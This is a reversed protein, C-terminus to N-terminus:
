TQEPARGSTGTRRLVLATLMLCTFVLYIALASVPIEAHFWLANQLWFTWATYLTLLPSLVAALYFTWYIFAEVQVFKALAPGAGDGSLRRLAFFWPVTAQQQDATLMFRLNLSLWTLIGISVIVIALYAKSVSTDVQVVPIHVRANDYQEKAQLYIERYSFGEESMVEALNQAGGGLTVAIARLRSSLRERGMGGAPEGPGISATLSGAYCHVEGDYDPPSWTMNSVWIEHQPQVGGELTALFYAAFPYRDMHRAAGYRLGGEGPNDLDFKEELRLWQRGQRTEEDWALEFDESWFGPEPQDCLDVDLRMALPRDARREDAYYVRQGSGSPQREVEACEEPHLGYSASVDPYIEIRIIEEGCVSAYMQNAGAFLYSGIVRAAPQNSFPVQGEAIYEADDFRRIAAVRAPAELLALALMDREYSILTQQQDVRDLYAAISFLSLVALTVIATRVNRIAEDLVVVSPLM